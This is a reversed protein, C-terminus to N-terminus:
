CLGSCLMIETRHMYVGPTFETSASLYLTTHVTQELSHLCLKGTYVSTAVFTFVNDKSSFHSTLPFNNFSLSFTLTDRLLLIIHQMVPECRLHMSLSVVSGSPCHACSSPFMVYLLNYNLIHLCGKLREVLTQVEM